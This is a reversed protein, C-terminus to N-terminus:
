LLVKGIKHDRNQGRYVCVHLLELQKRKREMSSHVYTNLTIGANAYWLNESLSKVDMGEVSAFSSM